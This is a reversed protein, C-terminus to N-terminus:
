KPESPSTPIAILAANRTRRLKRAADNKCVRCLFRDRVFKGRKWSQLRGHVAYEHGKPCHTHRHQGGGFELRVARLTNEAPTVPDLHEPNVCCRVRCRHDLHLGAPIAGKFHEYAWRHAYFNDYGESFHGYGGANVFGTWIWCGSNPEPSVKDWFRDIAATM